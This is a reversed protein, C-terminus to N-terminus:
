IVLFLKVFVFITSYNEYFIFMHDKIYILVNKNYLYEFYLFNLFSIENDNMYFTNSTPENFGHSM